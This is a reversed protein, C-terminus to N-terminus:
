FRLRLSYRIMRAGGDSFEPWKRTAIGRIGPGTMAIMEMILEAFPRMGGVSYTFLENEPFAEILRRTVRRHGQWHELLDAPTVVLNQTEEPTMITQQM